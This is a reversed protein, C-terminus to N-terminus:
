PRVEASAGGNPHPPTNEEIEEHIAIVEASSPTESEVDVAHIEDDSRQSKRTAKTQMGMM